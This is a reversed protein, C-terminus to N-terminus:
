VARSTLGDLQHRSAEAIGEVGVDRLGRDFHELKETAVNLKGVSLGAAPLRREVGSVPAARAFDDAVRRLSEGSIFRNDDGRSGTRGHDEM